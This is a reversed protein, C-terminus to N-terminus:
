SIDLIRMSKFCVREDVVNIDCGHVGVNNQRIAELRYRDDVILGTRPAQEVLGFVSAFSLKLPFPSSCRERDFLTFIKFNPFCNCGFSLELTLLKFLGDLSLNFGIRLPDILSSVNFSDFLSGIDYTHTLIREVDIRDSVESIPSVFVFTQCLLPLFIVFLSALGLVSSSYLLSFTQHNQVFRHLQGV